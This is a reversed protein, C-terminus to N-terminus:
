ISNGIRLAAWIGVFAGITSFIISSFSFVSGGWLMPIYAGIWSGIIICLWIFWRPIMYKLENNSYLCDLMDKQFVFIM